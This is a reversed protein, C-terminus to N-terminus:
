LRTTLNPLLVTEGAPSSMERGPLGGHYGKTFEITQCQVESVTLGGLMLTVVQGADESLLGVGDGPTRRITSKSTGSLPERTWSTCQTAAFTVRPGRTEVEFEVGSTM